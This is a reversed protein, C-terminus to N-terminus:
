RLVNFVIQVVRCFLIFAQDVINASLAAKARTMVEKAVALHAEASCKPVNLSEGIRFLMAKYDSFPMVVDVSVAASVPDM